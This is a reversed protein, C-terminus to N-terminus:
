FYVKDAGTPEGLPTLSTQSNECHIKAEERPFQALQMHRALPPQLLPQAKFSPFTAISPPNKTKLKLPFFCM